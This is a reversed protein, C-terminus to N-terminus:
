TPSPLADPGDRGKGAPNANADDQSLVQLQLEIKGQSIYLKCDYIPFIRWRVYVTQGIKGSKLQGKIPFWGRVQQVSFLNLYNDSRLKTSCKTAVDPPMQFNSINITISGSLQYNININLPVHKWLIIAKNKVKRIRERHLLVFYFIFSIHTSGVSFTM